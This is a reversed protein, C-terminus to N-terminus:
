VGEGKLPHSPLPYGLVACRLKFRVTIRRGNFLTLQYVVEYRADNTPLTRGRAFRIEHRFNYGVEDVSWSRGGQLADFLVEGVALPVARHGRVATLQEPWYPDVESASYDIALVDAPRIAAGARDVIRAMLVISGSANAKSCIGMATAVYNVLASQDRYDAETLGPECVGAVFPTRQSSRDASFGLALEKQSEVRL